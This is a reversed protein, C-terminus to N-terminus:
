TDGGTLAGLVIAVVSSVVFLGVSIKGIAAWTEM